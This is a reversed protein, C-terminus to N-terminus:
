PPGEKWGFPPPYTFRGEEDDWETFLKGLYLALPYLGLLLWWEIM